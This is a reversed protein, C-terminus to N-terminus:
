NLDDDKMYKTGKVTVELALGDETLQYIWVGPSVIAAGTFAGGDDDLKAAVTSQGGFEWGSNIFQDFVSKNEFVFVVQFRKIGIGLGAQVELMKMYTHKGSTNNIAEGKGKGGGAVFIKMGFNSFVAYGYSGSIAQKSEPQLKYLRKLTETTKDNIEKREKAVDKAG